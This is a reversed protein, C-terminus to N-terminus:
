LEEVASHVHECTTTNLDAGCQACLGKCDERCLIKAPLALILTDAVDKDIMIDNTRNTEVYRIENEEDGKPQRAVSYLITFEGRVERRVESLCRDCLFRPSSSARFHVYYMHGSKTLTVRTLVNGDFTEHGEFDKLDIGLEAAPVDFHFEHEGDQLSLIKEIVM